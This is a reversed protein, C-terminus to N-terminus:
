YPTLESLSSPMWINKKSALNDVLKKPRGSIKFVFNQCFLIESVNETNEIVFHTIEFM